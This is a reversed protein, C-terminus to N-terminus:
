LDLHSYENDDIEHGDEVESYKEIMFEGAKIAASLTRDHLEAKILEAATAYEEIESQRIISNFQKRQIGRKKLIENLIDGRNMITYLYPLMNGEIIETDSYGKGKLYPVSNGYAFEEELIVSKSRSIRHSVYHLLEHVIVEDTSLSAVVVNKDTSFGGTLRDSVIVSKNHFSYLGGVGGYGGDELERRPIKYVTVNLVNMGPFKRDVYDFAEKYEPYEIVTKNKSEIIKNLNIIGEKKDAKSKDKTKKVLKLYEAKMMKNKNKNKM